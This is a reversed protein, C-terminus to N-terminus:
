HLFHFSNIDFDLQFLNEINYKLFNFSVHKNAVVSRALINKKIASRDYVNKYFDSFIIRCTNKIFHRM